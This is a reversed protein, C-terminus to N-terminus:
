PLTPPEDLLHSDLMLLVLDGDIGEAVLGDVFASSHFHVVVGHGGASRHDEGVSIGDARNDVISCISMDGCFYANGEASSVRNGTMLGDSMETIVVGRAMSGVVENNEFTVHSVHSVIGEFVPGEIRCGRVLSPPRSDSNIIEVGQPQPARLGSVFCNTVEVSADQAVIGHWLAQEVSIGALTVGVSRVVLVGSRGGEIAVDRITVDKTDIITIVPSDDGGVIVSGETGIITLPKDVVVPGAYRESGLTLVDGPSAAAIAAALDGQVTEGGSVCASSVFALTLTVGLAKSRM